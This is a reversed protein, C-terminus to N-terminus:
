SSNLADRRMHTITAAHDRTMFSIVRGAASKRHLASTDM